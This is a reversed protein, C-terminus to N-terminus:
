FLFPAKPVSITTCLSVHFHAAHAQPFTSHFQDVRLRVCVDRRWGHWGEWGSSELGLDLSLAGASVWLGRVSTQGPQVVLSSSLTM